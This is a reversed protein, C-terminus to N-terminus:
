LLFLYRIVTNSVETITIDLHDTKPLQDGPLPPLRPPPATSPSSMVAVGEPGIELTTSPRRNEIPSPDVSGPLAGNEAPVAAVVGPDGHQEPPPPASPPAEDPNSGGASKLIEEEMSLTSGGVNGDNDKSSTNNNNNNSNNEEVLNDEAM